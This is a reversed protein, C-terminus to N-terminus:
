RWKSRELRIYRKWAKRSPSKLYKKFATRRHHAKRSFSSKSM